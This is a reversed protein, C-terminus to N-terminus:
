PVTATAGQMACACWVRYGRAPLPWALRNILGALAIPSHAATRSSRGIPDLGHQGPESVVHLGAGSTATVHGRLLREGRVTHGRRATLEYAARVWVRLDQSSTQSHRSAMM